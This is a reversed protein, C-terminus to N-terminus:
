KNQLELIKSVDIKSNRLYLEKDYKNIIVTKNKFNGNNRKKSKFPKKNHLMKKPKDPDIEIFAKKSKPRSLFIYDVQNSIKIDKHNINHKKCFDILSNIDDSSRYDDITINSKEKNCERCLPQLNFVDFALKPYKSKPKIHDIEINKKSNCKLCKKGISEYIIIRLKLWTKSNHFVESLIYSKKKNNGKNKSM